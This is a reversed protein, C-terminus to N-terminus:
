VKRARQHLWAPATKVNTPLVKVIWGQNDQGCSIVEFADDLRAGDVAIGRLTLTTGPAVPWTGAVHFQRVKCRVIRGARVGIWVRVDAVTIRDPEVAVIEPNSDTDEEGFRVLRNLEEDSLESMFKCGLVYTGDAEDRRVHVVRVYVTAPEQGDQGPLEIGLGTRPEFRRRLRVRVGSHSADEITCDWRLEHAAAPQCSTPVQCSHRESVRCDSTTQPM